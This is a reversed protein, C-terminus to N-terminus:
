MHGTHPPATKQLFHCSKRRLTHVPYMGVQHRATRSDATRHLCMEFSQQGSETHAKHLPNTAPDVGGARTHRNHLLDNGPGAQGFRSGETCGPFMGPVLPDVIRHCRDARIRGSHMQVLRNCPTHVLSTGAEKPFSSTNLTGGQCTRM